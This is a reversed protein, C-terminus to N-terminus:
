LEGVDPNRPSDTEKMVVYHSFGASIFTFITINKQSSVEM